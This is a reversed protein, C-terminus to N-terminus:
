QENNHHLSDFHYYSNKLDAEHKSDPFLSTDFPYKELFTQSHNLHEEKSSYSNSPVIYTLFDYMSSTKIAFGIDSTQLIKRIGDETCMWARFSLEQVFVETVLSFLAPVEAAVMKVDEEVKMLRKIRALPLKCSKVNFRSNNVKKFVNRWFQAIKKSYTSSADM